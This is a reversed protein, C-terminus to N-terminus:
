RAGCSIELPDMGSVPREGGKPVVAERKEDRSMFFPGGFPGQM